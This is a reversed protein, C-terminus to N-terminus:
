TFGQADNDGVSNPRRRDNDNNHANEQTDAAFYSTNPGELKWRAQDKGEYFHRASHLICICQIGSLRWVSDWYSLLKVSLPM